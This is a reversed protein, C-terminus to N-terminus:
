RGVPRVAAPDVAIWVAEARALLRGERGYLASASDFRRGAGGRPWAMVVCEEGVDPLAEVQATMTGLVMPRGAIGASWGGPCDLAAWVIEPTVDDPVWAAAYEGQGTAVRGPRLALGDTRGTGCSYCTPFPHGDLGEYAAGAAVADAYSVPPVAPDPLPPAPAAVAVLTDQDTLRLSSGDRELTMPVELPPPASLRVTVAPQSPTTPCEQALHGAFWGGNASQPPGNFRAPVTLTTM